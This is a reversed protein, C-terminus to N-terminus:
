IEVRALHRLNDHTDFVTTSSPVGRPILAQLAGYEGLNRVGLARASDSSFFRKLHGDVALQRVALQLSAAKRCFFLNHLEDLRRHLPLLRSASSIVDCSARSTV